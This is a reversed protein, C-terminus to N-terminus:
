ENKYAGLQSNQVNINKNKLKSPRGWLREKPLNFKGKLRHTNEITDDKSKRHSHAPQDATDMSHQYSYGM